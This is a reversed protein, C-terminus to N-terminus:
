GVRYRDADQRKLDLRLGPRSRDPARSGGRPQPAGDFLMPEIRVHDTTAHGEFTGDSGPRDTPVLYAAPEIASLVSDTRSPSTAKSPM